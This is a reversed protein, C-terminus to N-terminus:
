NVVLRSNLPLKAKQANELIYKVVNNFHQEDRIFRDWYESMWFGKADKPIGLDYKENNALAWKGTFSKWSQIIKSLSSKTQILVHVHNPMISWALLNYKDGDHYKLANYMVQAM